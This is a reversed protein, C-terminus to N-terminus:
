SPYATLVFFGSKHGEARKLIITFRNGAQTIKEDAHAVWGISEKAGFTGTIVKQPTKERSLWKSIMGAKNVLAYDVVQQATQLDVFVSNVDGKGEDRKKKALAIAEDENPDVHEDLTHAESFKADDAILDACNHVLVPTAGALVYFAHLDAVSLDFVQRPALNDRDKLATVTRTTGARTRLRYGAKLDSALTWGRGVVYFRHGTTTSVQEGTDVVVDVLHETDHRFTRTVARAQPSGVGGDGAAVVDGPHLDAIDKTSGDAMLVRTGAPFSNVRCTTVLEEYIDFTREVGALTAADVDLGKLARFADEVGVGTRLAADFARIADIAEGIKKGPLFNTAAWACGGASGHWCDVFDQALIAWAVKAIIKSIGEILELKTFYRTIQQSLNTFTNTGVFVTDEQPCGSETAPVDPNTCVYFSVTANFHLTFQVTCGSFGVDIVCDNDQHPDGIPDIKDVVYFSNAVGTGAGTGVQQNAQANAAETAAQQASEAYKQADKAAEEAATAQADADKAAARADTAAQEAQSAADRAAQADLAAADASDRAQTAYGDARGAADDAAKADATAQQDYAITRALSQAAQSAYGAAEASYDLAQKASARADAAYGAAEAALTYAAKADGTAANATSAAQAAAEQANQAHAEAVAQQQEAITKTSQGTLVALGAASDTTVYPAGLQVADNAPAAVQVAANGADVAAQSAAYAHGSAINAGAIATQAATNAADAQSKADAAHGEAEDALKVA